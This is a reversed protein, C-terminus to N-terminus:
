WYEQTQSRHAYPFFHENEPLGPCFDLHLTEWTPESVGRFEPWGRKSGLNLVNVKPTPLIVLHFFFANM